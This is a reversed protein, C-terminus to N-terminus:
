FGIFEEARCQYALICDSQDQEIHRNAVCHVRYPSMFNTLSRGHFSRAVGFRGSAGPRRSSLVGVPSPRIPVLSFFRGQMQCGTSVPLGTPNLRRTTQALQPPPSRSEGSGGCPPFSTRNPVSTQQTKAHTHPNWDCRVVQWAWFLIHSVQSVGFAM